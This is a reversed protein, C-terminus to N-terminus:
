NAIYYKMLKEAERRTTSNIERDSYFNIQITKEKIQGITKM